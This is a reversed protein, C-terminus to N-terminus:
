IFPFRFRLYTKLFLTKYARWWPVGGRVYGAVTLMTVKRQYKLGSQIPFVM